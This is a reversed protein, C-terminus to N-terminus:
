KLKKFSNIIVTNILISLNEFLYLMTTINKINQYMGRYVCVYMCVYVCVYM